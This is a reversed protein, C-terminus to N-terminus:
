NMPRSCLRDLRSCRVFVDGDADIKCIADLRGGPGLDVSNEFAAVDDGMPARCISWTNQYWSPVDRATYSMFKRTKDKEGFGRMVGKLAADGKFALLFDDNILAPADYFPGNYYDYFSYGIGAVILMAIAKKWM